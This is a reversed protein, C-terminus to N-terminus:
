QLVLLLLHLESEVMTIEQDVLNEVVLAKDLVVLDVEVAEMMVVLVEQSVKILQEQAVLMHTAVEMVEEVVVLVEQIELIQVKEEVEVEQQLLPLFFQTLDMQIKHVVVALLLHTIQPLMLLLQLNQQDVAVLLNEQYLHDIDELVEVEEMQLVLDEV